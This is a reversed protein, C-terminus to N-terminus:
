SVGPPEKTIKHLSVIIAMQVSISNSTAGNSRAAVFIERTNPLSTRLPFLPVRQFRLLGSLLRRDWMAFLYRAAFVRASSSTGPRCRNPLATTCRDMLMGRATTCRMRLSHDNLLKITFLSLRGRGDFAASCFGEDRKSTQRVFCSFRFSKRLLYLSTSCSLTYPSPLGRRLGRM